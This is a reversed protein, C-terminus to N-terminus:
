RKGPREAGGRGRAQEVLHRLNSRRYLSSRSVGSRAAVKYFSINQDSERLDDLADVVRREMDEAYEKRSDDLAQLCKQSPHQARPRKRKPLNRVM